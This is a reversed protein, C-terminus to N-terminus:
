DNRVRVSTRATRTVLRGERNRRELTLAATFLGTAPDFTVFFGGEDAVGNGNDDVGNPLEGELLERVWNARTVTLGPENDFDPTFVVRCEDILGNGNNDLGDDVEGPMYELRLRRTPSTLLAGGWGLGRRYDLGTSPFPAGPDLAITSRDADLLEDAVHAITRRVLADVNSNLFDQEYTGRGSMTVLALAGLLFSMVVLAIMVEVLSYGATATRGAGERLARVYTNKM